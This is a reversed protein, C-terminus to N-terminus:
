ARRGVLPPAAEDGEQLIDPSPVLLREMERPEFKTLGGAYTRGESVSTARSLYAALRNLVLDPLPERPYLGHAINIHRAEAMNRVFAPPRRAMYTALIPAPERLGVSWWAKRNSAVYGLHVGMERARALFRDIARREAGDFSSLDHPLDIIRRLPFADTLTGGAGFLERARTVTRYLVSGPLGVSHAGETWVRNAGTVQGRHVRCIEGLEVYGEPGRRAPRSLHSWRRESQLRERRVVRPESLAWEGKVSGARQLHISAPRSGVEFETIVATTMADPFPGANPEVVVIRRGGLGDLLLERILSGYNVDLWEAATIFSGVDGERAGIATALFFYAHLGALQSARLGRKAAETVLWRKWVPDILHHRVYPPNGIYTTCGDIRPVRVNRYDAVLVGARDAMGAAALHARTTLAAVPDLEIAILESQPFRRGAEVLFRGSGAGPDVVRAPQDGRAVWELMKRVVPLPTYVAGQSRRAVPSRISCFAEGLPDGGEQIRAVVEEVLADAVPAPESLLAAEGPSVAGPSLNGVAAALAVLDRETLFGPPRALGLQLDPGRTSLSM